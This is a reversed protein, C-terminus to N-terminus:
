FFSARHGHLKIDDTVSTKLGRIHELDREFVLGELGMMTNKVDYYISSPFNFTLIREYAPLSQSSKVRHQRKRTKPPSKDGENKEEIAM